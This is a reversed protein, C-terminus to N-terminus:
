WEWDEERPCVVIQRIEKLYKKVAPRPSEPGETPRQAWAGKIATQEALEKLRLYVQYPDLKALEAALKEIAEQLELESM